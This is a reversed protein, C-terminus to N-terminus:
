QFVTQTGWKPDDVRVLDFEFQLDEALKALLDVCFGSCCQWEENNINTENFTANNRFTIKIFCKVPKGSSILILEFVQICIKIKHSFGANKVDSIVCLCVQLDSKCLKISDSM